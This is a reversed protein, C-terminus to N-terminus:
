GPWRRHLWLWQEPRERIWGELMANIETMAARLDAKRDGTERLQLAPYATIRFRCGSMREIRVPLVPCKFRMGLQAVAPATMAEIGFFPASIGDNMKQDVLMGLIRGSKLVELAKRAGAAGKPVIADDGLRRVKRIMRDVIPNNPARYVQTYPLGIDRLALAFVEWNALHGSFLIGAKDGGHIASANDMGAVEVRGGKGPNRTIEPIHPYETIVRGLNDWMGRIIRKREAASLEPMARQLNREARQSIGTLPGFNRGIFGGIASAVDVPLLRFLGFAVAAGAAELPHAIKRPLLKAM